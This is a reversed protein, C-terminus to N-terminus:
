STLCGGASMVRKKRASSLVLDYHLDKKDDSQYNKNKSQGRKHHWQRVRGTVFQTGAVNVDPDCSRVILANGWSDAYQEQKNARSDHDGSAGFVLPGEKMANYPYQAPSVVSHVPYVRM